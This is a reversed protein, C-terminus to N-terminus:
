MILKGMFAMAMKDVRNKTGDAVPGSFNDDITNKFLLTWKQFHEPHISLDAHKSFPNGKYAKQFFLVTNWFDCMRKLHSDWDDDAIRSAFIPFLLPDTKVLDYFKYVFVKIDDMNEIDKM